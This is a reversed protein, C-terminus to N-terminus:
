ARTTTCSIQASADGQALKMSQACRHYIIDWRPNLLVLLTAQFNKYNRFPVSFSEMSTLLIFGSWM